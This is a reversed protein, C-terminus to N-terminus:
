EPVQDESLRHVARHDPRQGHRAPRARGRHVNSGHQYINERLWGLLTDFRGERSRPPFRRIRAAASRGYFMASMINGLTYGQFVGGIRFGYWHVDQLCGDRDDPPEIGLDSKYRRTGPM